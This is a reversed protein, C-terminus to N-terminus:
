EVEGINRPTTSFVLWNEWCLPYLDPCKKTFFM